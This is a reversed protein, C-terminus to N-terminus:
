ILEELLVRIYQTLQFTCSYAVRVSYPVDPFYSWINEPSNRQSFNHNCYQTVLSMGQKMKM